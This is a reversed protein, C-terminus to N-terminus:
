NNNVYNTIGPSLHMEGVLPSDVKVLGYLVIGCFAALSILLILFNSLSSRGLLIRIGILVLLVPWFPLIYVWIERSVLGATNLLLLVGTFFVAWGFIAGGFHNHEHNHHCKWHNGREKERWKGEGNMEEGFIQVHPRPGSNNKENKNEEM